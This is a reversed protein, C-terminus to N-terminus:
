LSTGAPRSKAAARVAPSERCARRAGGDRRRLFAEAGRARQLWRQHAPHDGQIRRCQGRRGTPEAWEEELVARRDQVGAGAARRTPLPLSISASCIVMAAITPAGTIQIPGRGKFRKGDGVELTASSPRSRARPNTAFSRRILGWLEQMFRLQGVRAGAACFRPWARPGARRQIRDLADNLLFSSLGSRRRCHRCSRTCNSTLLMLGRACTITVPHRERRNDDVNAHYVNRGALRRVVRRQRRADAAVRDCRLSPSPPM